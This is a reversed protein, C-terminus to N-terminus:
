KGLILFVLILWKCPASVLGLTHDKLKVKEGEPSFSDNCQSKNDWLLKAEHYFQAAKLNMNQRTVGTGYKNTGWPANINPAGTLCHCVAAVIGTNM